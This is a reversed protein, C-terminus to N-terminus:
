IGNCGRFRVITNSISYFIVYVNLLYCFGLGFVGMFSLEEFASSSKSAVLRQYGEIRLGYLHHSKKTKLKTKNEM